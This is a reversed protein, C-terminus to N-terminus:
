LLSPLQVTLFGRQPANAHCVFNGQVDISLHYTTALAHSQYVAGIQAFADYGNFAFDYRVRINGQFPPAGALPSGLAGSPNSLKQGSSTRLASFDIPIGDVWLFTAQEVL